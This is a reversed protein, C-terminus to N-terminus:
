EMRRRADRLVDSEELSKASDRRSADEEAKSKVQVLARQLDNIQNNLHQREADWQRTSSALQEELKVRERFAEELRREYDAKTDERASNALQHYREIDAHAKTLKEELERIRAEEITEKRGHIRELQE